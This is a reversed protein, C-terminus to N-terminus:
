QLGAIGFTSVAVLLYVLLQCLLLLYEHLICTWCAQGKLLLSLLM